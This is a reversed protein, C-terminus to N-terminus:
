ILDKQRRRDLAAKIIKVYDTRASRERIGLNSDHIRRELVVGPLFVSRLGAEQAKSLWDIFEGLRYDEVFPGVRLFSARKILLCGLLCGREAGTIRRGEGFLQVGGFVMDLSRDAALAAVQDALKTPSWRDDADLFAFHDGRALQLGTNRAAGAGRKTQYHYNIRPAYSRAIQASNDTSGDDVVIIELPLCTQALVSDIAEALYREGNHVPIIVSIKSKNSRTFVM